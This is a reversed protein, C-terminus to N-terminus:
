VRGAGWDCVCRVGIMTLLAAACAGPDGGGEGGTADSAVGRGGAARSVSRSAADTINRRGEACACACSKPMVAVEHAAKSLRLM